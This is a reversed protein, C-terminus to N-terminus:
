EFDYESDNKYYMLYMDKSKNDYVLYGDMSNVESFSEEIEYKGRDVLLNNDYDYISDIGNDSVVYFAHYLKVHDYKFELYENNFLDVIGYMGNSNQYSILINNSDLKFSIDVSNKDFKINGNKDIIKLNSYEDYESKIVVRNEISYFSIDTMDDEDVVKYILRGKYDYISGDYFLIHNKNFSMGSEEDVDTLPIIYNNYNLDLIGIKNGKTVCFYDDYLLRIEDYVDSIFNNELSIIYSGNKRNNKILYKDNLIGYSDGDKFEYLINFSSDLLLYKNNHKVMIKDNFYDILEGDYYFTKKTKINYLMKKVFLTDDEEICFTNEGIPDIKLAEFGVNHNYKFVVKGYMDYVVNNDVFYKGSSSFGNYWEGSLSEGKYNYLNGSIDLMYPSHFSLGFMEEDEVDKGLNKLHNVDVVSIDIKNIRNIIKNYDRDVSDDSESFVFYCIFCILLIFIIVIRKKKKSKM